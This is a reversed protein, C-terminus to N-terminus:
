EEVRRRKGQGKVEKATRRKSEHGQKKSKEKGRAEM